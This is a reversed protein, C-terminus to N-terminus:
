SRGSEGVLAVFADELAGDGAIDAPTGDAVVRGGAVVVMRHAVAQVEHLQHSSLVIAHDAALERLMDRFERAQVPDLGAAPEDLLLVPPAAVLADAIGVRQRYGKSLTGIVDDARDTVAVRAMAADVREGIRARPVGKIRARFRLYAAVRMDAHLPVSEPLYGLQACAQPRERQVDYGNIQVTGADPALFGAMIRLTTTKGAGNPGVFGVVEGRDVDFSADEIAVTRGFRKTVRDVSIM